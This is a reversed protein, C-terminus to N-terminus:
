AKVKRVRKKKSRELLGEERFDRIVSMVYNIGLGTIKAIEKPRKGKRALMLIELRKSIWYSLGEEKIVRLM